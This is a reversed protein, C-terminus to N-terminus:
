IKPKPTFYIKKPTKPQHKVGQIRIRRDVYKQPDPDLFGFDKPDL